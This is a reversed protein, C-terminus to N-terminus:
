LRTWDREKSGEEQPELIQAPAEEEEPEREEIDVKELELEDVEPEPMPKGKPKRTESTLHKVRIPTQCRPCLGSSICSQCLLSGCEPCSAAATEGHFLCKRTKISGTKPGEKESGYFTSYMEKEVNGFLLPGNQARARQVPRPAPQEEIPESPPLFVADPSSTMPPEEEFEPDFMPPPAVATRPAARMTKAPAKRRAKTPAPRRREKVVMDPASITKFANMAVKLRRAKYIGIGFTEMLGIVNKREETLELATRLLQQVEEDPMTRSLDMSNVSEIYGLVKKADSVDVHPLAGMVDSLKLGYSTVSPNRYALLLVTRSADEYWEREEYSLTAVDMGEKEGIFSAVDDLFEYPVNCTRFMDEKSLARGQRQEMSLVSAAYERVLREHLSKQVESMGESASTMAPDLELAKEFARMAKDTSNMRLLAFGKGNWAIADNVDLGLANDYSKLVEEDKGLKESIAAREMWFRRNSPDLSSARDIATFANDMFQQQEEILALREWVVADTPAILTARVYTERAEEFRGISELAKGKSRLVPGDEFGLDIAHNYASIAKPMDGLKLLANGKFRWAEGHNQDVSIAQDFADVAEEMRSQSALARGKDTHFRPNAPNERVCREFNDLAEDFRQMYLLTRGKNDLITM